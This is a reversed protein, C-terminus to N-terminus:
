HRLPLLRVSKVQMDGLGPTTADPYGDMKGVSLNMVMVMATQPVDDTTEFYPKGDIAWIIRNPSWVLLYRHFDRSFDLSPSVPAMVCKSEASAFLWNDLHWKDTGAWRARTIATQTEAAPRPNAAVVRACTLSRDVGGVMRPHASDPQVGNHWHHLTSQLVGPHGGFGEVVDIEGDTPQGYPTRLWLAPWYGRGRPMRATFEVCGFRVSQRSIVRGSVYQSMLSNRWSDSRMILNRLYTSRMLLGGWFSDSTKRAVLHLTGGGAYVNAASTGEISGDPYPAILREFANWDAAFGSDLRFNTGGNTGCYSYADDAAAHARAPNGVLAWLSLLVALGAHRLLPRIM